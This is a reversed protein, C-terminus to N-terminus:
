SRVPHAYFTSTLRMDMTLSALTDGEPLDALRYASVM